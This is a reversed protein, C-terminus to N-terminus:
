TSEEVKQGYILEIYTLVYNQTGFIEFNVMSLELKECLKSRAFEKRKQM